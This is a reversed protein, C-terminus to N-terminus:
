IMKSISLEKFDDFTQKESDSLDSYNVINQNEEGDEKVFKVIMRPPILVLEYQVAVSTIKKEEM